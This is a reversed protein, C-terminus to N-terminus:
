KETKNKGNAGGGAFKEAPVRANTYLIVIVFLKRNKGFAGRVEM